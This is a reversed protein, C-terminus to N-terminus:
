SDVGDQLQATSVIKSHVEKNTSSSSLGVQRLLRRWRPPFAWNQHLRYRKCLKQAQFIDKVAHKHLSRLLCSMGFCSRIELPPTLLHMCDHNHRYILITLLFRCSRCSPAHKRSHFFVPINSKAKLSAVYWDKGYCFVRTSKRLFFLMGTKGYCLIREKGCFNLKQLQRKRRVIM